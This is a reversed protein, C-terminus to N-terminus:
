EGDLLSCLQASDLDFSPTFASIGRSLVEAAALRNTVNLSFDGVRLGAGGEHLSGLGRVLVSDPELSALFRDIKEEGPKRIRPPAVGVVTRGKLGRVADGTGTLELFDIYVGDAGAQVAAEAQELNRCLVF